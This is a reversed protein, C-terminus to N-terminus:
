CCFHAVRGNREIVYEWLGLDLIAVDDVAIGAM